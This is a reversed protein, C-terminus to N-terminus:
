KEKPTLSLADITAQIPRTQDQHYELADQLLTVRERLKDNEDLLKANFALRRNLEAVQERLEAIEADSAEKGCRYAEALAVPTDARVILNALEVLDGASYEQADPVGMRELMDRANQEATM